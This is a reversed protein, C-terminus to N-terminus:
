EGARRETTNRETRKRTPGLSYKFDPVGPPSPPLTPARASGGEGGGQPTGNRSFEGEAGFACSFSVYQQIDARVPRGAVAQYKRDVAAVDKVLGGAVPNLQVVAM